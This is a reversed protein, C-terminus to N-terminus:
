REALAYFVPLYELYTQKRLLRKLNARWRPGSRPHFYSRFRFVRELSPWDERRYLSPRSGLGYDELRFGAEDLLRPLKRGLYPDGGVREIGRALRMIMPKSDGPDPEVIMGAYDPEACLLLKGGPKLVRRAEALASRPDVWMLSFHFLVFDVTADAFPLAEAGGCVPLLGNGPAPLINLDHDLGVLRLEPRTQLLKESVHGRGCALDLLIGRRLACRRALYRCTARTQESQWRLFDLWPEPPDLRDTM